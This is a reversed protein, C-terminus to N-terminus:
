VGLDLASRAAALARASQRRAEAVRPDRRTTGLNIEVLNAAARVAGSALIAGAVADGRLNPNGHTAVELALEAARAGEGAIELPIEAARALANGIAKNRVEPELDTPLRLAALVEAYAQGDGPALPTVRARIAEAEAVLAEAGDWHDTSIRGAMAALGAALAVVIASSTGAGPAPMDSAVDDLFEGVPRRLFDDLTDV